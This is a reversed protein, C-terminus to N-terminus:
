IAVNLVVLTTEASLANQVVLLKLVHRARMLLVVLLTMMLPVVLVEEMRIPVGLVYVM